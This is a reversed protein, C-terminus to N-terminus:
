ASAVIWIGLAVAVLSFLSLGLGIWRVKRKVAADNWPEADPDIALARQFGTGVARRSGGHRATSQVQWRITLSTAFIDLLGGVLSACGGVLIAWGIATNM